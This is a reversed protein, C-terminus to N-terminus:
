QEVPCDDSLKTTVNTTYDAHNLNLNIRVGRNVSEALRDSHCEIQKIAKKTAKEIIQVYHPM